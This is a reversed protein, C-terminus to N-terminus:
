RIAGAIAWYVELRRRREVHVALSELGIDKLTRPDLQELATIERRARWWAAFRALIGPRVVRIEWGAGARRLVIDTM